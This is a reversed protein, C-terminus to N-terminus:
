KVEIQYAAPSRTFRTTGTVVLVAREGNNLSIPIEVTQDENLIINEVTTTVGETILALRYTQPLANEVRVFGSAVWGGDDTEFDTQYQIADVRVDDLLFGEGNVALDTIYEFRVFIKKGAYQSLDIKEQVWLNTKDNYGWGYSSGTIDQGTGSPTQVIQWYEGDESVELHLYDYDKELDYWMQYTLEINGSTDMFDFERTLTMNSSDGKNSWFAYSGSHPDAPLLKTSTSGTFSTTHEGACNLVIYDVGFQHVDRTLPSQPCTNITETPNASFADEYNEYYYKGDGISKDLLYNTVAWDLFFDETQILKGTAPDAANIQLLVNDVGELGNAQEHVLAKTADEGFRNLFYNLFMFSAGYHPITSNGSDVPWDNLQIDTNNTYVVDAGGVTYGNIHMAVDSFGENIWTTENRDGKWHIMHQFEHALVGYTFEKSLDTLDASFVFMEHANSYEQIAPHTEDASSFFGAVSGGLNRAYLIYIHPDGDIGPTWESGFFERNTPYIKEDFAGILKEVEGMDVNVGDQVWFYVLPTVYQLTANVQAHINSSSNLVWFKDKEGEIRPKAPPELTEAVNCVGKLKCALERPDNELVQVQKLMELTNAPVASVPTRVVDTPVPFDSTTPTFSDMVYYVYGGVSLVAVALCCLVVVVAIILFSRSNNKEM